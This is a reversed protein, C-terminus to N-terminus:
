DVGTWAFPPVGLLDIVQMHALEGSPDAPLRRLLKTKLEQELRRVLAKGSM